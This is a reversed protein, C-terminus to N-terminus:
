PKLKKVKKVAKVDIAPFIVWSINSFKLSDESNGSKGKSNITGGVQSSRISGRNNGSDCQM